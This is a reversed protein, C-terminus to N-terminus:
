WLYIRQQERRKFRLLMCGLLLIEGVNKGPMTGHSGQLTYRAATYV